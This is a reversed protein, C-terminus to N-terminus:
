GMIQAPRGPNRGLRGAWRCAVLGLIVWYPLWWLRANSAPAPQFSLLTFVLAGLWIGLLGIIVQWQKARAATDVLLPLLLVFDWSWMYTGAITTLAVGWVTGQVPGTRLWLYVAALLCGAFILGFILIGPGSLGVHAEILWLTSPQEWRPNRRLNALLDNWWSIDALWM